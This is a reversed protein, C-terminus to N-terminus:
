RGGLEHEVRESDGSGHHARAFQALECYLLTFQERLDAGFHPRGGHEGAITGAGVEVLVHEVPVPDGDLSIPLADHLSLPSIATTATPTFASFLSFPA